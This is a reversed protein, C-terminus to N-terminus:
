FNINVPIKNNKLYKDLEYSSNINNQKCFKQVFTLSILKLRYVKETEEVTDIINSMNDFKFCDLASIPLEKVLKQTLLFDEWTENPYGVMIDTSIKVDPLISIFRNIKNIVDEIQYERKMLELIKNSGSQLPIPLIPNINKLKYLEVYKNFDKIFYKPHIASFSIKMNPKTKVIEKVLEFINLGIDTGYSGIEEGVLSIANIKYDLNDVESIIETITKSKTKGGARKIVCYSCNENCGNSIRIPFSNLKIKLLDQIKKKDLPKKDKLISFHEEFNRPTFFNDVKFSLESTFKKNIAPICGGIWIESKKHKLKNIEAIENLTDSYQKKSFGCSMVIIVDAEKPDEVVYNNTDILHNAIRIGDAQNSACGLQLIHYKKNEKIM